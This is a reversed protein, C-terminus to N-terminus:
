GCSSSTRIAAQPGSRAAKTPRCSTQGMFVIHSAERRPSTESTQRQIYLTGSASSKRSFFCRIPSRVECYTGGQPLRQHVGNTSQRTVVDIWHCSLMMSRKPAM